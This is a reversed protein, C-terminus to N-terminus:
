NIRASMYSCCSEATIIQTKEEGSVYNHDVLETFSFTFSSTLIIRSQVWTLLRGSNNLEEQSSGKDREVVELHMSAPRYTAKMPAMKGSGVDSNGRPKPKMGTTLPKPLDVMVVAAPSGSNDKGAIELTNSKQRNDGNHKHSDESEISGNVPTNDASRNVSTDSIEITDSSQEKEVTVLTSGSEETSAQEDNFQGASKCDVSEAIIDTNQTDNEIMGVVTNHELYPTTPKMPSGLNNPVATDILSEPGGDSGAEHSSHDDLSHEALSSKKFLSTLAKAHDFENSEEINISQISASDESSLTQTSIAQSGYGSSALSPQSCKRM